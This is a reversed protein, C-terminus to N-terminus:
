LGDIDDIETLNDIMALKKRAESATESKIAIKRGSVLGLTIENAKGQPETWSEIASRQIRESNIKVIPNAM